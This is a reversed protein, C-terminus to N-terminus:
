VDALQERTMDPPVQPVGASHTLVLAVTLSEEGNAGFEPWYRPIPSEYAVRGGEVLAPVVTAAVGQGGSWVNIVKGGTMPRRSTPDALGAVADVVLQGDHYAAVQIGTEQGTSVLEHLLREVAQQAAPNSVSATQVPDEM